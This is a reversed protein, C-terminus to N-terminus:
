NFRVIAGHRYIMDQSWLQKATWTCATPNDTDCTSYYMLHTSAYAEFILYWGTGSPPRFMFPGEVGAGWGAWDGTKVMTFPGAAATATALGIYGTLDAKCWLYFTSGILYAQPDITDTQNLAVDVPASWVTLDAPSAHTEYIKFAGNGAISCPVHLHVNGDAQYVSGDSNRVWGGAYCTTVGSIEATWDVAKITTVQGTTANAQGIIWPVLVLAQDNATADHLYLTSGIFIADPANIQQPTRTGSAPESLYDGWQGGANRWELGTTGTATTFLNPGGPQGFGTFGFYVYVPATGMWTNSASACLCVLAILCIRRM